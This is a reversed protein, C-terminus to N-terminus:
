LVGQALLRGCVHPAGSLGGTGAHAAAVQQNHPGAPGLVGAGAREACCFPSKLAKRTHALISTLSINCVPTSTGLSAEQGLKPLPSRNTIRDWFGPAQGKQAACPLCDAGKSALSLLGLTSLQQVCSGLANQLCAHGLRLQLAPMHITTCHYLQSCHALLLCAFHVPARKALLLTAAWSDSVFASAACGHCTLAKQARM